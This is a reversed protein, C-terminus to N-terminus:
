GGESRAKGNTSRISLASPWSSTAFIIPIVYIIVVTVLLNADVRRNSHMTVLLRALSRVLFSIRVSPSWLSACLGSLLLYLPRQLQMGTRVRRSYPVFIQYVHCIVTWLFVAPECVDKLHLPEIIEVKAYEHHGLM